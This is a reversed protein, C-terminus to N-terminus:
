SRRAFLNYLRAALWGLAAGIAAGWVFGVVSGGVSVSYGPLYVSLLGLHPGVTEGGRLVLVLTALGLLLGVVLGSAVTWARVRLRLLAHRAEIALQEDTPTLISPSTAM